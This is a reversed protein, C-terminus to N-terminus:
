KLHNHILSLPIIQPVSFVFNRGKDYFSKGCVGCCVRGKRGGAPSLSPLSCLSSPLPRLSSSCSPLPHLSSSFSSTPLPSLSFSSSSKLKQSTKPPSSSVSPHLSSSTPILSSNLSPSLSSTNEQKAMGRHLNLEQDKDFRPDQHWIPLAPKPKDPDAKIRLAPEGEFQQLIPDNEQERRGGEQRHRKSPPVLEQCFLFLSTRTVILPSVFGFKFFREIYTGPSNNPPKRTTSSPHNLLKKSFFLPPTPSCLPFLLKM